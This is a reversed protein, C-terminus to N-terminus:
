ARRKVLKIVPVLQMVEGKDNEIESSGSLRQYEVLYSSMSEKMEKVEEKLEKVKSAITAVDPRKMIEAKTAGKVKQAQKAAEEHAQYTEDNLLVSDIMEKYKKAEENIKDERALNERIMSELNDLILTDSATSISDTEKAGEIIEGDQVLTSDADLNNDPQKLTDDM